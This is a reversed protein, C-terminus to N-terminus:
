NFYVLEEVPMAATEARKLYLVPGEGHYPPFYEYKISATLEVWSGNKFKESNMSRCIFGIFRIDDACCTMARRGPVFYGDPFDKGKYINGTFKVTKGDYRSKEELADIYWIGFDEDSIEIVDANVDFPLQAQALNLVQGDVSEFIIQANSNVARINRRYSALPMDTTCRNVIIMESSKFIDLLLSRMNNMYVDFAAGNVVTVIQNMFWPKPLRMGLLDDVKWMGNYEIFVCEPKYKDKCQELFEENFDERSDVAICDIHYEALMGADYEAEGEECLILLVRDEELFGEAQLTEQLFSTKGADLFGTMLFVPVKM